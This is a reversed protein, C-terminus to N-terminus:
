SGYGHVYTNIYMHIKTHMCPSRWVHMYIHIYTHANVGTYKCTCMHRKSAHIYGIYSVTNTAYKTMYNDAHHMYIYMYEWTSARADHTYRETCAHVKMYLWIWIHQHMQLHCFWAQSYPVRANKMDGFRWIMDHQEHTFKRQSSCASSEPQRCVIREFHMVSSSSGRDWFGEMSM